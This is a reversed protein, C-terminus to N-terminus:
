GGKRPKDSKVKPLIGKKEMDKRMAELIKKTSKIEEPSKLKAMDAEKELQKKMKEKRRIDALCSCEEKRQHWNGYVCKRQGEKLRQLEDYQSPMYIGEIEASNLTKDDIKIFRHGTGSALIDELTKVRDVEVWISLGSKMLIIKQQKTIESM